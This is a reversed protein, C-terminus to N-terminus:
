RESNFESVSMREAFKANNISILVGAIKDLFVIFVPCLERQQAARACVRAVPPIADCNVHRAPLEGHRAERRTLDNYVRAQRIPYPEGRRVFRLVLHTYKKCSDTPHQESWSASTFTPAGGGGGQSDLDSIPKAVEKDATPRLSNLM